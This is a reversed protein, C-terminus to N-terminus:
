RNQMRIKEFCAACYVPRDNRPVFPVTTSVGCEACIVPHMERPGAGSRERRRAARCTPCRQPENMLGKERFFTQEGVTFVFTCGCERCKLTKDKLATTIDTM